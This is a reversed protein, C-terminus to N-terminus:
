PSPVVITTGASIGPGSVQVLTRAFLGVQVSVLRHVGADVVELAFGGDAPAVLAGVPVALVGRVSADTIDVTVPAQDLSGLINQDALAVTVDVEAPQGNPPGDSRDSAVPSVASVTGITAAGNPLDVHVADGAQTLHLQSVLMPVTVGRVTSTVTAVVTGAAAPSGLQIPVAGVRIPAPSWVADGVAVRGTAPRGLSRQWRRVAATTGASFHNDVIVVKPDAFGLAVLNEELQRVDPGDTVGPGLTRWAPRAGLLLPIARGDVEFAAQGRGIVAGPAPLATFAVGNTQNVLDGQGLYALTGNVSLTTSLDTRIVKATSTSSTASPPDGRGRHAALTGVGAAVAAVAAVSVALGAASRGRV